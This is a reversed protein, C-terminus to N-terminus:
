DGALVRTRRAGVLPADADVRSLCSTISEASRDSGLMQLISAVDAVFHPSEGGHQKVWGIVHRLLEERPPPTARRGRRSRRRRRIGGATTAPATTDLTKGTENRQM